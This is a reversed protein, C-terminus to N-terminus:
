LGAGPRAAQRRPLPGRTPPRGAALSPPRAAAPEAPAARRLEGTPSNTSSTCTQACFPAKALRLYAQPPPPRPDIQRPPRSRIVGASANPRDGTPPASGNPRPGCRRVEAQICGVSLSPLGWSDQLKYLITAM